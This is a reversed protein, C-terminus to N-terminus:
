KKLKLKMLGEKLASVKNEEKRGEKQAREEEQKRNKGVDMMDSLEKCREKSWEGGMDLMNNEEMEMMRTMVIADRLVEGIGPIGAMESTGIDQFAAKLGVGGLGAMAADLPNPAENSPAARLAKEIGSIAPSSVHGDDSARQLNLAIRSALAQPVPSQEQEAGHSQKASQHAAEHEGRRAAMHERDLSVLLAEFGAPDDRVRDVVYRRVEALMATQVETRSERSTLEPHHLASLVGDIAPRVDQTADPRWLSAIKAITYSTMKSAVRGALENLPHGYHDKALESHSPDQVTSGIDFVSKDRMAREQALLAAEQEQLGTAIQDLVPRLFIGLATYILRDVATSLAAIADQVARVTLHDYTWRVINDRLRFFPELSQWLLDPTEQLKGWDAPESNSAMKHVSNVDKEFPADLDKLIGLLSKTVASLVGDSSATRARLSPLNFTTLKDDIEGLITQYLDVAGFTGTVLPPVLGHMTPVRVADGVFPFVRALGPAKGGPESSTREHEDFGGKGLRRLCLELWNSHAIFDEIAHLAAGLHLYAEADGSRGCAVAAILQDEIYEAATEIRPTKAEVDDDNRRPPTNAIYNKMGSASDIVYEEPLVHYHLGSVSGGGGDYGKPNDIHHRPRYLGLRESTVEFERTSYGFQLVGFVAVLVRLIPEPVHSLSRTDLLQSFDRLWNGFYITKVLRRNVKALFPVALLIDGHRFSTGQQPSGRAVFGAGFALSPTTLLAITLLILVLSSTHASM